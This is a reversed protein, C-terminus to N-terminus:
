SLHGRCGLLLYLMGEVCVAVCVVVCVAIHIADLRMSCRPSM